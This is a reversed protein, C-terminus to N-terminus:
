ITEKLYKYEIYKLQQMKDFQRGDNKGGKGENRGWREHNTAEPFFQHVTIVPAIFSM